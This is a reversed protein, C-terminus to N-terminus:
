VREVLARVAADAQALLEDYQKASEVTRDTQEDILASRWVSENFGEANLVREAAGAPGGSVYSTVVLQRLNRKARELDATLQQQRTTMDAREAEILQREAE